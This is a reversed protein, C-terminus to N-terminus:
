VTEAGHSKKESESKSTRFLSYPSLFDFSVLFSLAESELNLMAPDFCISSSSGNPSPLIVDNAALRRLVHPAYQSDAHPHYPM